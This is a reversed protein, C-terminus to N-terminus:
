TSVYRINLAYWGTQGTAANIHTVDSYFKINTDVVCSSATDSGSNRYYTPYSAGLGTFNVPVALDSTWIPSEAAGLTVISQPVFINCSRGNRVFELTLTATSQANNSFATSQNVEEYEAKIADIQAQVLPDIYRFVPNSFVQNSM